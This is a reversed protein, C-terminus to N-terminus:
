GCRVGGRELGGPAPRHREAERTGGAHGDRAARDARLRARQQAEPWRQNTTLQHLRDHRNRLYLARKSPVSSTATGMFRLCLHDADLILRKVLRKWECRVVVVDVAKRHMIYVLAATLRQHQHMAIRGPAIQVTLKNGSERPM